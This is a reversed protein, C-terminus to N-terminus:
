NAKKKFKKKPKNLLESNESGGALSLKIGAVPPDEQMIEAYNKQASVQEKIRALAEDNACKRTGSNQM